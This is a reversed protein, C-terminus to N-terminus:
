WWVNLKLNQTATETKSPKRKVDVDRSNMMALSEVDVIVVEGEYWGYALVTVEIVVQVYGKGNCQYGRAMKRWNGMLVLSNLITPGREKHVKTIRNSRM